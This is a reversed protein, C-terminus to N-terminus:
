SKPRLAKDVLERLESPVFPKSLFQSGEDIFEQIGSEELPYGSMFFIQIGPYIRQVRRTLEPGDMVPMAIDTLLLHITGMWHDCQYLAESGTQAELVHYGANRLVLATLRRIREDDDVILVTRESSFSGTSAPVTDQLMPMKEAGPTVEPLYV